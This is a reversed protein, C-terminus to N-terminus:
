KGMPIWQMEKEQEPTPEKEGPLEVKAGPPFPKAFVPTIFFVLEKEKLEDSTSRFLAGLIPIDGLLPIKRLFKVTEEQLLGALILSEGEKLEVVTKVERTDIIPSELGAVKMTGTINSIEAPDIKLITSGTETIEPTFNLKVGVDRYEITTVALGTTGTVVPVPIRTGALFYGKEGSKVVLNPEALIKALNKSALAELVVGVGGPFYSVGIQFPTLPNFETIGPSDGAVGGLPMGPLGVTGEGSSGKVLASLGLKRLAGRDVQAVKVQLLIQQPEEVKIFNLVKPAYAQAIQIAKKVDQEKSAKGSLIITDKIFRVNIKEGPLIEKIRLSLDATDGIVSIDFFSIKGDKEWVILTTTGIAKGNVIFQTPSVTVIDAISPNAILIREIPNKLTILASKNIVIETLIGGYLNRPILLFLCIIVLLNLWRGECKVRM